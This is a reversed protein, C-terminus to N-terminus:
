VRVRQRVSVLTKAMRIRKCVAAATIGARERSCGCHLPRAGGGLLINDCTVLTVPLSINICTNFNIVEFRGQYNSLVSPKKYHIKHLEEKM